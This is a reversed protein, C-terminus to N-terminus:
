QKNNLQKYKKDYYEKTVPVGKLNRLDRISVLQKKPKSISYVECEHYNNNIVIVPAKFFKIEAGCIGNHKPVIVKFYAFSDGGTNVRTPKSNAVQNKVEDKKRFFKVLDFM